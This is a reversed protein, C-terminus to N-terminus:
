GIDMHEILLDLLQAQTAQIASRIESIRAAIEMQARHLDLYKDYEVKYRAYANQSEMEAAALEANVM